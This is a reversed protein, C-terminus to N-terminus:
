LWHSRPVQGSPPIALPSLHSDILVADLLLNYLKHDVSRGFWLSQRPAFLARRPSRSDSGRSDAREVTGM